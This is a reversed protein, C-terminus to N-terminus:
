EEKGRRFSRRTGELNATIARAKEKVKAKFQEAVREELERVASSYLNGEVLPRAMLRMVNTVVLPHTGSYYAQDEGGIKKPLTWDLNQLPMVASLALGLHRCAANGAVEISYQQSTWVPSVLYCRPAPDLAHWFYFPLIPFRAYRELSTLAEKLTKPESPVGLRNLLVMLSSLVARNLYEDTAGEERELRPQDVLNRVFTLLAHRMLSPPSLESGAVEFLEWDRRLSASEGSITQWAERLQQRWEPQLPSDEILLDVNDWICTQSFAYTQDLTILDGGLSADEGLLVIGAILSRWALICFLMEGLPVYHLVLDERADRDAKAVYFGPGDDPPLYRFYEETRPLEPSAQKAQVERVHVFLRHVLAGWRAEADAARWVYRTRYTTPMRQDYSNFFHTKGINPDVFLFGSSLIGLSACLSYVADEDLVPQMTRVIADLSGSVRAGATDIRVWGPHGLQVLNAPRRRM